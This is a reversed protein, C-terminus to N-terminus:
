SQAAFVLKQAEPMYWKVVERAKNAIPSKWDRFLETVQRSRQRTLRGARAMGRRSSSTAGSQERSVTHPPRCMEIRPFTVRSTSVGIGSRLPGHFRRPNRAHYKSSIDRNHYRSDRSVMRLLEQSQANPVVIWKVKRTQPNPEHQALSTPLM